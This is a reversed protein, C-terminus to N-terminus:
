NVRWTFDSLYLSVVWSMSESPVEVVLPNKPDIYGVEENKYRVKFVKGSWFIAVDRSLALSSTGVRLSKNSKIFKVVSAMTPYKNDTMNAFSESFLLEEIPMSNPNACVSSIDVGQKYRRGPQRKLYVANSGWQIYGLPLSSVDLDPDNSAVTQVTGEDKNLYPRQLSLMGDAVVRCYYARGRYRIFTRDLRASLDQGEWKIKMPM